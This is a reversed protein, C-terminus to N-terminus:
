EIPFKFETRIFNATEKREKGKKKREKRKKRRELKHTKSSLFDRKKVIYVTLRRM